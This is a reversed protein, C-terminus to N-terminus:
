RARKRQKYSQRKHAKAEVDYPYLLSIFEKDGASLTMNEGIEFGASTFESPIPPFAMISERDFAKEYPFFERDWQHFFHQNVM